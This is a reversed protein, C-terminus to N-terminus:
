AKVPFADADLEQKGGGHEGQSSDCRSLSLSQRKLRITGKSIICLIRFLVHMEIESPFASPVNTPSFHSCKKRGTKQM